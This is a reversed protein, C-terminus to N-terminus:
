LFHGDGPGRLRTRPFRAFGRARFDSRQGTTNPVTVPYVKVLYERM